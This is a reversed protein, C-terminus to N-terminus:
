KVGSRDLLRAIVAPPVNANRLAIGMTAGYTYTSRYPTQVQVSWLPALVRVPYASVRTNTMPDRLTRM